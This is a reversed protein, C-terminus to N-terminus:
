TFEQNLNLAIQKTNLLDSVAKSTATVFETNVSFLNKRNTIMKSNILLIIHKTKDINNTKYQKIAFKTFKERPM